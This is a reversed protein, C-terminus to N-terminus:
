RLALKRVSGQTLNGARDRASFRVSLSKTHSQRLADRGSDTLKLRISTSGARTYIEAKGQGVLLRGIRMNVQLRCSENCAVPELFSRGNILNTRSSSSKLSYTLSAKTTDNAVGGIVALSTLDDAVAHTGIEPQTGEPTAKGSTPTVSYLKVRDGGVPKFTAYAKGAQTIDFGLPGQADVGLPGVTTLVGTPTPDTPPTTPPTTPTAPADEIALVDKTTDIAYLQTSTATNVPNSYALGAVSPIAAANADGTKYTLQGLAAATSDGPDLRLNQRTDSNIRARDSVPNFDFGFGTGSLAPSFPGGGVLTAAGTQTSLLYLRSTSGLAYLRGNRPRVDIGVIKEGAQLGSIPAVTRLNGPSDSAFTLVKNTGTVGALLDAAGASAPVIAFAAVVAAGMAMSKLSRM